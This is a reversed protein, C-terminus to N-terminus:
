EDPMKSNQQTMCSKLLTYVMGAQKLDFTGMAQGQFWATIVKGQKMMALLERSKTEGNNGEWITWIGQIDSDVYGGSGGTTKGVGQFDFTMPQSTDDMDKGEVIPWQDKVVGAIVKGDGPFTMFALTLGDARPYSVRCTGDGIQMQFAYTEPEDAKAAGALALGAAFLATTLRKM